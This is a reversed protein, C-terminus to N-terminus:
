GVTAACRADPPGASGRKCIPQPGGSRPKAAVTPHRNPLPTITNSRIRRVGPLPHLAAHAGAREECCGVGGDDWPSRAAPMRPVQAEGDVAEGLDGPCGPPHRHVIPTITNSRIRRVGPLPHLAFRVGAREEFCGVGGDDWPSRSAPTRPVQAEGNASQSLDGPDRGQRSRPIVTPIFRDFPDFDVSKDEM